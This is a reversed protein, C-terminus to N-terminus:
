ATQAVDVWAGRTSTTLVQSPDADLCGARWLVVQGHVWLMDNNEIFRDM